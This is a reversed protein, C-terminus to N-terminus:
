KKLLPSLKKYILIIIVSSLVGKLLNFPTTAFLVLSKLDTISSNLANAMSIIAELPMVKTYVPLLIFLNLLGGIITMCLTGTALGIVASKRTSRHRYFLGAPVLFACGIIFNALEGIGGTITGNLLLNLLVKIFEITIGPVIGLSFTGILVVVESLDIKYFSPAFFLPIEFLMVVVSIASLMGIKAMTKISTHTRIVTNM